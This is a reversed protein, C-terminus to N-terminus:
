QSGGGVDAPRQAVRRRRTHDENNSAEKYEREGRYMKMGGVLRTLLPRQNSHDTGSISGRWPGAGGDRLVVRRLTPAVSGLRIKKKRAQPASAVLWVQCLHPGPRTVAVRTAARWTM